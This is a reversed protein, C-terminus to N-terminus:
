ADCSVAGIEEDIEIQVGDAMIIKDSIQEVNHAEVYLAGTYEWENESFTVTWTKKDM